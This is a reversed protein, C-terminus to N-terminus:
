NPTRSSEEPNEGWKNKNYGILDISMDSTRMVYGFICIFGRNYFQENLVFNLEFM